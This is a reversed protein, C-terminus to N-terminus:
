PPTARQPLELARLVTAMYNAPVERHKGTGSAIVVAHTGLAREIGASNSRTVRSAGLKRLLRRHLLRDERAPRGGLHIALFHLGRDVHTEIFRAYRATGAYLADFLVVNRLLEDIGGRELLALATEYGASHALLTISAVDSLSRPGGLKGALTEALLERLFERFVAPQGFAGPQGNRKMFALQPVIFLTNTGAADHRAGLDWGLQAADGAICHSPGHGMLVSVCGTYGHLYVVLHLKGRADFGPPAHVIVGPAGLMQYAAARVNAALTFGDAAPQQAHAFPAALLVAVVCSCLLRVARQM